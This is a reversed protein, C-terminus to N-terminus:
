MTQLPQLDRGGPCEEQPQRLDTPRPNPHGTERPAGVGQLTGSTRRRTNKLCTLSTYLQTKGGPLRLQPIFVGTWVPSAKYFCCFFDALRPDAATTSSGPGSTRTAARFKEPTAEPVGRPGRPAVEGNWAEFRGFVYPLQAQAIWALYGGVRPRAGRRALPKGEPARIWEPAQIRPPGDSRIGPAVAAVAGVSRRCCPGHEGRAKGM